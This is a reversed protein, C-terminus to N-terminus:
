LSFVEFPASSVRHDLALDKIQFANRSSDLPPVEGFVVTPVCTNEPEWLFRVMLCPTPYPTKEPAGDSDLGAGKGNETRNRSSEISILCPEDRETVGGSDNCKPEGVSGM